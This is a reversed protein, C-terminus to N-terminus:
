EDNEGNELERAVLEAYGAIDRWHDVNDCDGGIIRTLKGAINALGYSQVATYDKKGDTNITNMLKEFIVAGNRFDGHTEARESLIRDLSKM